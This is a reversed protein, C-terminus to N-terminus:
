SLNFPRLQFHTRTFQGRMAFGFVFQPLIAQLHSFHGFGFMESSSKSTRCSTPSTPNAFAPRQDLNILGFPESWANSRARITNSSVFCGSLPLSNTNLHVVNVSSSCCTATLIYSIEVSFRLKTMCVVFSLCACRSNAGNSHVVIYKRIMSDFCKFHREIERYIM